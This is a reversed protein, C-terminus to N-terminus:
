AIKEIRRNSGRERESLFIRMLVMNEFKRLRHEEM